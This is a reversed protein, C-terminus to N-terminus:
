ENELEELEKLLEEKRKAKSEKLKRKKKSQLDALEGELFERYDIRCLDKVSFIFSVGDGWSDCYSMSQVKVKNKDIILLANDIEGFELSDIASKIRILPELDKLLSSKLDKIRSELTLVEEIKERM